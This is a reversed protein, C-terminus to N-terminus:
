PRNESAAHHPTRVTLARERRVPYVARAADPLSRLTPCGVDRLDSELASGEPRAEDHATADQEYQFWRRYREIM